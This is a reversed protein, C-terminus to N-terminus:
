SRDAAGRPRPWATARRRHITSWSSDSVENIAIGGFSAPYRWSGEAERPRGSEDLDSNHGIRWGRAILANHLANLRDTEISPGHLVNV